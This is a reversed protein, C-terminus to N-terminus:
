VGKRSVGSFWVNSDLGLSEFGDVAEMGEKMLRRSNLLFHMFGKGKVGVQVAYESVFEYFGNNKIMRSNDVVKVDRYQNKLFEAVRKAEDYVVEPDPSRDVIGDSNVNRNPHQGVTIFFYM